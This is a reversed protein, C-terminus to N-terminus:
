YYYLIYQFRRFVLKVGFLCIILLLIPHISVILFFSKFDYLTPNITIYSTNFSYDFQEPNTKCNRILLLIPHISVKRNGNNRGTPYRNITIYSTNFSWHHRVRHM